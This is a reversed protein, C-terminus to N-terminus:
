SAEEPGLDKIDKAFLDSSPRAAAQLKIIQNANILVTDEQERQFQDDIYGKPDIQPIRYKEGWESRQVDNQVQQKGWKQGKKMNKEYKNKM